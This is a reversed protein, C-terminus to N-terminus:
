SDFFTDELMLCLAHYIPLHYEQIKHTQTEPACICIDTLPKLKGGSQGTLGIISMGKAKAVRAARLLNESNGSTTICLLVDGEQGLGFTLQAFCDKADCDNSFATMLSMLNPLPIAPLAGQLRHTLEGMSAEWEKGLPRKKCFGKLLEGSIHDADSASGGNGALLLKRGNNFCRTLLEYAETISQSCAELKPHRELCLKLQTHM